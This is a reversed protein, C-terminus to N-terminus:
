LNSKIEKTMEVTVGGDANNYVNLTDMFSEMLTFGMGSREEQSKTTFFPQRAKDIDEIGTGLDVVKIYVVNNKIGVYIEIDGRKEKSYGHVISNTVAESVATKIDNIESISPNLQVCFTAVMSRAFGENILKADLKLYFKNEFNEFSDM